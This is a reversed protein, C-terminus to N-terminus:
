KAGCVEPPSSADITALWTEFKKQRPSPASFIRHARDGAAGPLFSLIRASATNQREERRQEEKAIVERLAPEVLDRRGLRLLALTAADFEERRDRGRLREAIADADGASLPALRCLARLPEPAWSRPRDFALREVIPLVPAGFEPLRKVMAVPVIDGDLTKAPTKGWIALLDPLLPALRDHPLAALLGSLNRQTEREAKPEALRRDIAAVMAPIRDTWVEPHASLGALDHVTVRKKPDALAADLAALSTTERKEVVSAFDPLPDAAIRDLRTSAPSPALGLATTIAARASVAGLPRKRDRMFEAFCKWSPSASNLACGIMPIPLWPLPSVEGVVLDIRHEGDTITITQTWREAPDKRVYERGGVSVTVPDSAIPSPMDVNCVGKLFVSRGSQREHIGWARINAASLSPDKRIQECIEGVALRHLTAAAAPKRPDLTWYAPLDWDVLLNGIGDGSREIVLSQRTPDFAITKGDNVHAHAAVLADTEARSQWAATGYALACVLPVVLWARATAGIAAELTLLGLGLLYLPGNWLPALLFMLFIGTIPIAQLGWIITAILFVISSRPLIRRSPM